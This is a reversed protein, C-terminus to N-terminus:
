STLYPSLRADLLRDFDPHRGEGFILWFDHYELAHIAALKLELIHGQCPNMDSCLRLFQSVHVLGVSRTYPNVSPQWPTTYCTIARVPLPSSRTTATSEWNVSMSMQIKGPRCWLSMGTLVFSVWGYIHTRFQEHIKEELYPVRWNQM